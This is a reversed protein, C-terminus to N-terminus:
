LTTNCGEYRWLSTKGGKSMFLRAHFFSESVLVFVSPTYKACFYEMMCGFLKQFRQGHKDNSDLQKVTYIVCFAHSLM